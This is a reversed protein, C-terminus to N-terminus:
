LADLATKVKMAINEARVTNAIALAEDFCSRAETIQKRAVHLMGM